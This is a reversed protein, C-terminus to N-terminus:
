PVLIEFRLDDRGRLPLWTLYLTVDHRAVVAVVTVSQGLCVGCGKKETMLCAPLIGADADRRRTTSSGSCAFPNSTVDPQQGVKRKVLQREAWRALVAVRAVARWHPQVRRM